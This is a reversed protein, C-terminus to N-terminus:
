SYGSFAASTSLMRKDRIVLRKTPNYGSQEALHLVSRKCPVHQRLIKYKNTNKKGEPLNYYVEPFSSLYNIINYYFGTSNIDTVNLKM